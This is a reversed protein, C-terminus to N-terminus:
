LEEEGDDMEHDELAEEDARSQEDYATSRMIQFGEEEYTERYAFALSSGDGLGLSKPTDKMAGTKCIEEWQVGEDNEGAPKGLIVDSIKSPHPIPASSPSTSSSPLGAPYREGLIELLDEKLNNMPTLPEAYLLVTVNASKFTLTLNTSSGENDIPQM